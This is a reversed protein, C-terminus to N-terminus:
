DIYNSYKKEGVFQCVYLGWIGIGEKLGLVKVKCIAWAVGSWGVGAGNVNREAFSFRRSGLPGSVSM